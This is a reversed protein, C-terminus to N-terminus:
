LGKAQSCPSSPQNHEAEKLKQAFYILRQKNEASLQSIIRILEIQLENTSREIKM